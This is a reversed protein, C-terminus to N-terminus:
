FMSATITPGPYQGNVVLMRKPIGDPSLTVNTIEFDYKVVKGTDPWKQEM